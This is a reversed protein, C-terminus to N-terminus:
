SWFPFNGQMTIEPCPESVAPRYVEHDNQEQAGGLIYKAGVESM